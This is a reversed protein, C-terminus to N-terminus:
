RVYEAVAVTLREAAADADPIADLAPADLGPPPNPLRSALERLLDRPDHGCGVCVGAAAVATGGDRAVCPTMWTKARPCDIHFAVPM